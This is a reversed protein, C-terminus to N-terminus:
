KSGAAKKLRELHIRFGAMGATDPDAAIGRELAPILLPSGLSELSQLCSARVLRVRRPDALIEAMAPAAPAYRIVGLGYAAFLQVQEDPDDLLRIGIEGAAEGAHYPIAEALDYRVQRERHDVLHGMWEMARRNQQVRLIGMASLVTIANEDHLQSRLFAEETGNARAAILDRHRLATERVCPCMSGEPNQSAACTAPERTFLPIFWECPVAPGEFLPYGLSPINRRREKIAFSIYSSHDQRIATGRVHLLVTDGPAVAPADTSPSRYMVEGVRFLAAHVKLTDGPEYLKVGLNKGSLVLDVKEQLVWLPSYSARALSAGLLLIAFFLLMRVLRPKM